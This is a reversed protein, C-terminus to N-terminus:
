EQNHLVKSFYITLKPQYCNVSLAMNNTNNKTTQKTSLLQSPFLSYVQEKNKKWYMHERLLSILRSIWIVEM